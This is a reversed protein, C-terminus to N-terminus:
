TRYSGQRDETFMQRQSPILTYARSTNQPKKSKEWKRMIEQSLPRSCPSVGNLTKSIRTFSSNLPSVEVSWKSVSKGPRSVPPEPSPHMAYWKIQSKLLKIFQDFQLWNRDGTRTLHGQLLHLNMQEIKSCFWNDAPMPVSVKGTPHSRSGTWPNDQHSPCVYELEPIFSWKHMFQRGIVRTRVESLNRIPQILKQAPCLMWFAVEGEKPAVFLGIRTPDSLKSTQSKSAGKELPFTEGEHVLQSHFVPSPLFPSNHLEQRRTEGLDSHLSTMEIDRRILGACGIVYLDQRLMHTMAESQCPLVRQQIQNEQGLYGPFEHVQLTISSGSLTLERNFRIKARKLTSKISDRCRDM